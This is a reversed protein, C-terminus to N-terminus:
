RTGIQNKRMLYDPYPYDIAKVLRRDLLDLQAKEEASRYLFIGVQGYERIYEEEFDRDRRIMIVLFHMIILFSLIGLLGALRALKSVNVRKAKPYRKKITRSARHNMEVGEKDM